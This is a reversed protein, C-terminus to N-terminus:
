MAGKVVTRVRRKTAHVPNKLVHVVELQARIRSEGTEFVRAVQALWFADAQHDDAVKAGAREAAAIMADKDATHDGTAFKKLAPPAVVVYPIQRRLLVLRVTGGVEGLQHASFEANHAYGEFAVLM